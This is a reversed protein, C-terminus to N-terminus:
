MLGLSKVVFVAAVAVVILSLLSIGTSITDNVTDALGGMMTTSNTSNNVDTAASVGSLVLISIVLCLSIFIFHNGYRQLEM